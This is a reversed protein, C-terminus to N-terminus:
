RNRSGKVRKKQQTEAMNGTEMYGTVSERSASSNDKMSQLKEKEISDM